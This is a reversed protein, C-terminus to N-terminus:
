SDIKLPFVDIRLAKLGTTCTRGKVFPFSTRCTGAILECEFCLPCPFPLFPGEKLRETLVLAWLSFRFTSFKSSGVWPFFGAILYLLSFYLDKNKNVDNEWFTDLQIGKPIWNSVKRPYIVGTLCQKQM